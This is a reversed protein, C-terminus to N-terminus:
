TIMITLGILSSFICAFFSIVLFENIARRHFSLGMISKMIISYNLFSSAVMSMHSFFVTLIDIFKYPGFDSLFLPTSDVPATSNFLRFGSRLKKWQSKNLTMCLVLLLPLFAAFTKKFHLYRSFSLSCFFQSLVEWSM